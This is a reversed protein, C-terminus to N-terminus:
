IRYLKIAKNQVNKINKDINSDCYIIINYEVM